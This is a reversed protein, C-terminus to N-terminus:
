PTLVRRSFSCTFRFVPRNGGSKMNWGDQSSTSANSDYVSAEVPAAELDCKAVKFRPRFMLYRGKANVSCPATIAALM